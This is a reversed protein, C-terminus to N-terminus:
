KKDRRHRSYTLDFETRWADRQISQFPFPNNPLVGTLVAEYADLRGMEAAGLRLANDYHVSKM